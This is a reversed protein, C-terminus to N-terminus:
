LQQSSNVLVNEYITLYDSAMKEASYQTTSLSYAYSIMKKLSGKHSSCLEIANVLDKVSRPAVLIGANGNRLVMPIGGVKTAVVPVKAQMAELLTIPFGETLSPIVFVTFTPIYNRADKLYGPMLVSGEIASKKVISELFQREPGEGIIVLRVNLGKRILVQVCKILYRFGKEESLRGIAGITIGNKDFSGSQKDFSVESTKFDIKSIGNHVTLLKSRIPKLNPHYKMAETVVVVADMFRMSFADLQEYIWMKSFQETSTWGHVTTVIPLTRSFFSTLGLLINPKYGHCHIIDYNHNKAWKAIKTARLLDLGPRLPLVSFEIGTKFAESEISPDTGHAPRMNLIAPQLGVRSQEVALNILVNEAGYQGESDIVHLLKM